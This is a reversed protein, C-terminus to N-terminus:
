PEEWIDVTLARHELILKTAMGADIPIEIYASDKPHVTCHTTNLCLAYEKTGDLRHLKQVQLIVRNM